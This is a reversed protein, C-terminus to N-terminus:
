TFDAMAIVMALRALIMCLPMANFVIEMTGGVDKQISPAETAFATGLLQSLLIPISHSSCNTLWLWCQAILINRMQEFAIEAMLNVFSQTSSAEM